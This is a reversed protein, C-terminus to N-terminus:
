IVGVPSLMLLKKLHQPYYSAYLGSIYGGFSHGALIFDTLGGMKLRWNELFSVFYQDAEDPDTIDFKPRSSGGFGLVDIMILNFNESLPKMIKYFILASGGYGHLLVLTPKDPNELIFTRVFNGSDDIVVNHIIFRDLPIGSFSLLNAEATALKEDTIAYKECHGGM